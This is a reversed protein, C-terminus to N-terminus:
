RIDSRLDDSCWQFLLQWGTDTNGDSNRDPDSDGDAYPNGDTDSDDTNGDTNAYAHWLESGNAAM